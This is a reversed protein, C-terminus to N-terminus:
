PLRGLWSMGRRPTSPPAGCAPGAAGPTRARKGGGECVKHADDKRIAGHAARAHGRAAAAPRGERVSRLAGARPVARGASYHPFAPAPPLGERKRWGERWGEMWGEMGRRGERWGEGGGEM